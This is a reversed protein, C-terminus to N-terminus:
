VQGEHETYEAITIDKLSDRQSIAYLVKNPLPDDMYAQAFIDATSPVEQEPMDNALIRLRELLNNPKLFEQEMNKLREDGGEPLDGPRKILADGKGNPKEPRYVIDYDFGISFQSWRAQRRNLLKKTMCYKLNKHDTILQLPYAAGKCEARSEELAKIIGMLEKDYIDYNCESPSHKKSYYAVPHLV